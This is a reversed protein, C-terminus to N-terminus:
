VAISGEPSPNTTPAQNDIGTETNGAVADYDVTALGVHEL